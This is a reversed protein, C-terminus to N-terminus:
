NASVPKPKGAIPILKARELALVILPVLVLQALIGPWANIFAGAVFLAVTFTKTLFLTYLVFSAVGWVARGLLMAAALAVFVRATGKLSTKSLREYLLGSFCGYAALEFAMAVATPMLPPMGFLMTRLLPAILGVALGWPWGCVFGCLLVPLHMPLLASGLQPIQGTLFPLVLALALFLASLSLRYVDNKRMM